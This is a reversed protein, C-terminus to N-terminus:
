KRSKRSKRGSEAPTGEGGVSGSSGEGAARRALLENIFNDLVDDPMSGFDPNLATGNKGTHEFRKTFGQDKLRTEMFFIQAKTDSKVEARVQRGKDDYVAGAGTCKRTFDSVVLAATEYFATDLEERFHLELTKKDIAANTQPNRIAKCIETQTFGGIALQRVIQRQRPTPEFPNRGGAPRAGPTGKPEPPTQKKRNAISKPM